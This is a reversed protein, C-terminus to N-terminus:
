RGLDLGKRERQYINKLNQIWTYKKIGKLKLMREKNQVNLIGNNNNNMPLKMEPSTEKTEQVNTHM